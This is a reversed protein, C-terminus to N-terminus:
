VNVMESLVIQFDQAQQGCHFKVRNLKVAKGSHFM